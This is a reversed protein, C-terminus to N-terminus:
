EVEFAIPFYNQTGFDFLMPHPVICFRPLSTQLSHDVLLESIRDVLKFPLSKLSDLLLLRSCALKERSKHFFDLSQEVVLILLLFLWDISDVFGKSLANHETTLSRKNTVEHAHPSRKLLRSFEEQMKTFLVLEILWLGM